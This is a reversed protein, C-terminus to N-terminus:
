ALLLAVIPAPVAWAPHRLDVIDRTAVVGAAYRTEIAKAEPRWGSTVWKSELATTAVTAGSPAPLPVPAFDVEGTSTRAYGISDQSLWRGPQTREISAALSVGLATETLHSLDPSALGARARPALQAILPDVLYLKSQAGAVRRGATDVQPCWLAAFSRVLRTLRLDLTQRSGYGLARALDSRNLPSTSRRHLEHLLLPVSDEPADADVDRHLWAALDAIFGESVGGARAYEAVARPFGGSTLFAQWALDLEDSFLELGAIADRAVESQLEWPPLTPPLPVEGRTVAIVDRFSMPMLLRTRHGTGGGARGALLDREVSATDDWSSGTCVVTDEGFPTNDRLYKLRQTWGDVSTVEDLLWVRPRRGDADVSRTLERAQVVARGLNAATMGDAPLYVVQRPDVDQRACLAAAVDKVAVSKGVRRPGRLVILNDAIPGEAVDALIPSRFGLDHRKRDRLVRDDDVWALPDSGVVM